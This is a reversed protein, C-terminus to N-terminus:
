DIVIPHEKTSGTLRPRKKSGAITPHDKTSNTFRPRKKSDTVIPHEETSDPGCTRQRSQLDCVWNDCEWHVWYDIVGNWVSAPPSLNVYVVMGGRNRVRRAFERTLTRPGYVTLSTGLILLVQVTAACDTDVLRGIDGSQPHVADLMIISPRLQGIASRRKGAAVRGERYTICVPCRLERGADITDRHAEWKDTACCVPCELGALSGHLPICRFEGGIGTRLGAKQELMDINQTYCRQLKSDLSALWRHTATPECGAALDRLQLTTQLLKVKRSDIFAREYFIDGDAYLGGPSRFDKIGAETSIGAGAIVLIKKARALTEAITQLLDSDCEHVPRVPTRPVPLPM